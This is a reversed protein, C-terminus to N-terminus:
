MGVVKERAERRTKCAICYTTVPRAKLRAIGIEEGCMECIGYTDDEMNALAQRIKNILHSERDRMRFTYSRDTSITAQDLPDAAYDESTLLNSVTMDARDLLQDLWDNLLKRFYELEEKQM